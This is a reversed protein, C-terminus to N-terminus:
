LLHYSILFPKTTRTAQFSNHHSIIYKLVFIFVFKTNRAPLLFLYESSQVCVCVCIEGVGVCLATTAAGPVHIFVITPYCRSSVAPRGRPPSGPTDLAQCLYCWSIGIKNIIIKKSGIYGRTGSARRHARCLRSRSASCTECEGLNRTNGCTFLSAYSILIM